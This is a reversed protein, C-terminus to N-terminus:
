CNTLSEALSYQPRNPLQLLAHDVAQEATVVEPWLDVPHCELARALKIRREYLPIYGAREVMVLLPRGIRGRRCVEIQSLQLEKRRTFVRSHTETARIYKNM